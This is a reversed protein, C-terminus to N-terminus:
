VIADLRGALRMYDDSWGSSMATEQLAGTPAFLLRLTRDADADGQEILGSLKEVDRVLADGNPYSSSWGTDQPTARLRALLDGVIRTISDAVTARYRWIAASFPM